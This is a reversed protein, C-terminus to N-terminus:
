QHAVYSETPVMGPGRDVERFFRDLTPVLEDVPMGIDHSLSYILYAAGTMTDDSRGKVTIRFCGDSRKRVICLTAEEIHKGTRRNKRDM